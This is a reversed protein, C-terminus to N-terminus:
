SDSTARFAATQLRSWQPRKKPQDRATSKRGPTACGIAETAGSGQNEFHKIAEKISTEQDPAEVYALFKGRQRILTIAWQYQKKTAMESTIHNMHESVAARWRRSQALEPLAADRM